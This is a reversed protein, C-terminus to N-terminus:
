VASPWGRRATPMAAPLTVEPLPPAPVLLTARSLSVGPLVLAQLVAQLAPGPLAPGRVAAALESLM